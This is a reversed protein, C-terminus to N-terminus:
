AAPVEAQERTTTRLPVEQLLWTLLFAFISVAAAVLFV